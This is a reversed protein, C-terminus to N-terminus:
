MQYSCIIVHLTNNSINVVQIIFLYKLSAVYSANTHIQGTLVTEVPLQSGDVHERVRQGAKLYLGHVFETSSVLNWVGCYM